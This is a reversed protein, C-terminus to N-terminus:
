RVRPRTGSRESTDVAADGVARALARGASPRLEREVVAVLADVGGDKNVIPGIQEALRIRHADRSATFFVILGVRGSAVLESALEVGDGDPLDIDVISLDM